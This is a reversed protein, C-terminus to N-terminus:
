HKIWVYMSTVCLMCLGIIYWSVCRQLVCWEYSPIHKMLLWPHSTDTELMSLPYVTTIGTQLMNWAYGSTAGIKRYSTEDIDLPSVDTQLMQWAYILTVGTKRYCTIHMALFSMQRNTVYKMCLWYHCLDTQLMNWAYDITVCTQRYCTEHMTLLSVPRDTVHKMCLWYHCLDTLLMNWAYDSTVGTERHCPVHM